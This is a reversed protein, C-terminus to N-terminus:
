SLLNSLHPLVKAGVAAGVGIKAATNVVNHKRKEKALMKKIKEDWEESIREKESKSYKKLSKIMELEKRSRDAEKLYNLTKKDLIGEYGKSKADM